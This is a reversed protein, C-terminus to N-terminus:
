DIKLKENFGKIGWIHRYNERERKERKWIKKYIYINKIIIIIIMIIMIIIIMIIIIM